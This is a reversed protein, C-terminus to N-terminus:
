NKKGKVLKFHGKVGKRVQKLKFNTKHALLTDISAHKNAGNVQFLTQKM